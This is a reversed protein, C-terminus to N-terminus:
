FNFINLQKYIENKSIQFQKDNLIEKIPTKDFLSVSFVQLIEYLSQEIRLKKRTIAVILYASLAIWIQTKVANENEGWFVRIRLHQKIWKFFLEIKWRQRYLEAIMTADLEMNNTLLLVTKGTDPDKSRIYRLPQPYAKKSYYNRFHVTNDALIDGQVRAGDLIALKLNNRARIVFFAKQRDIRFLQELDFYARDMIYFAAPRFDIQPLIKMDHVKGSTIAVLEPLAHGVDLLTHLKLGATTTRYHAWQYVEVCLRILTSDLAYVSGQLERGIEPENVYLAKAEQMLQVAFDAYIRWDRHRNADSLTSRSVQKKFGLHYLKKGQANLCLVIDRLSERHTLQGFALCLFQQWCTFNRSRYNGKYREVCKNFVYKPAYDMLQSYVYKGQNM